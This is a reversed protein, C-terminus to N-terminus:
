GTGRAGWLLVNNAPLKMCFQETNRTIAEKQRDIELLDDLDIHGGIEIAEFAGGWRDAAWVATITEKWDIDPRTPIVKLLRDLLQSIKKELNEGLDGIM